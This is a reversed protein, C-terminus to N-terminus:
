TKMQLLMLNIWKKCQKIINNCKNEEKKTVLDRSTRYAYTEILDIWQM